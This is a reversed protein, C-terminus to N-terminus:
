PNERSALAPAATEQESNPESTPESNPESTADIDADADAEASKRTVNVAQLGKPSEMLDYIVSEGEKLTRFGEMQIASHHVFIDPSDGHVIFGYGKQDSFWKVSGEEKMAMKEESVTVAEEFRAADGFSRSGSM